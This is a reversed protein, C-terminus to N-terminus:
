EDPPKRFERKARKEQPEEPAKTRHRKKTFKNAITGVLTSYRRAMEEDSVTMERERQESKAELEEAEMSRMLKEISPNMGKFSMRGFKLNECVAFSPEVEFKSEKATIEPLDLFWHTDDNHRRQEAEEAEKQANSEQTRQMFKMQMLNKSLKTKGSGCDRRDNAM